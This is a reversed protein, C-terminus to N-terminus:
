FEIGKQAMVGARFPHALLSMETALDAIELLEPAANRGTLIVHTMEPKENQLFSIVEATDIYGYRMAINIEDLMVLSIEPDTILTKALHWAKQAMDMDRQKDQTEWTFGEGMTHFQCIDSFYQAILNREGTDM